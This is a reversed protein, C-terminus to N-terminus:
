KIRIGTRKIEDAIPSLGKKFEEETFGHPEIRLDVLRAYKWLLRENKDWNRKLKDSIIAVDIDSYKKAENKAYSGYLYAAKIPFKEKELKKTFDIIINKINNPM